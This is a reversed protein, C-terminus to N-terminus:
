NCLVYITFAVVLVAVLVMALGVGDDGFDDTRRIWDGYDQM